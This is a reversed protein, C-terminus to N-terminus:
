AETPQQSILELAFAGRESKLLHALDDSDAEVTVAGV